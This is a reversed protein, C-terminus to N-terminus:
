NGLLVDAECGTNVLQTRINDGIGLIHHTM